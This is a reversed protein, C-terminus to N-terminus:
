FSNKTWQMPDVAVTNVLMEWHLHDGTAFGTKGMVGIPNGKEIRQGVNINSFSELHCYMTSVGCGHDIVVTNGTQAFRDKLKIVGDQAAWIISKKRAGLDVAKHMYRGKERTTRITGFDCTVTTMDLPVCFVGQWLKEQPSNRAIDELKLKLDQPTLGSEEEKKIAAADFTLMQKKFPYPIVQFKNELTQRAGVKDVIDVSLLYENPIEECSIPIFAEYVSSHVSEPVCNFVKSLTKVQAFKIEKNAQFQLHFTRGQFVKPESEQRVFAAQLPVNDVNFVCDEVTKNKHYTGNVAEVRLTHPGNSLAQSSITFPYDFDRRNIRFKNVLPANDLYISIDSVKYGDSGSLVCQMNGAYFGDRELGSLKIAPSSSDFFYHYTRLSLWCFVVASLVFFVRKRRFIM